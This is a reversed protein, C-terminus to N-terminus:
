KLSSQLVPQLSCKLRTEDGSTASSAEILCAPNGWLSEGLAVTRLRLLCVHCAILGVSLATTHIRVLLTLECACATTHRIDRNSRSVPGMSKQRHHGDAAFWLRLRLHIARGCNSHRRTCVLFATTRTYLQSALLYCCESAALGAVLVVVLLLALAPRPCCSPPSYAPVITRPM